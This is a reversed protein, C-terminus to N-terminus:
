LQTMGGDAVLETGVVFSSAPSALFLVAAAIEEPRGLRGLPVQAIFQKEVESIAEDPLGLRNFIPTAIPGPSVANVRIGRGILEASLTRALSRLAAKAASYVSAGPLGSENAGSTTLIISAGDNLAPLAAQVTHYAGKINTDFIRDYHADDADTIPAFEAIGANVYLIDIKGFAKVTIDILRNLDARNTVDGQVGLANAGLTEAAADLTQQNRGFLVVKAGGDILAKASALGIGSNGGTIVAVKNDVTIMTFNRGENARWSAATPCIHVDFHDCHFQNIQADNNAFHITL